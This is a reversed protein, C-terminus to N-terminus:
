LLAEAAEEAEEEEMPGNLALEPDTAGKSVLTLLDRYAKIGARVENSDVHRGDLDDAEGALDKVIKRLGVALADCHMHQLECKGKQRRDLFTVAEEAAGDQADAVMTALGAKNYAGIATKTLKKTVAAAEKLRDVQIESLHFIM